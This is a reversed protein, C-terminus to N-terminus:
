LLNLNFYNYWNLQNTIGNSTHCVSLYQDLSIEDADTGCVARILLRLVNRSETFYLEKRIYSEM